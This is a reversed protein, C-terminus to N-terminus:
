NKSNESGAFDDCVEDVTTNVLRGLEMIQDDTYQPGVPMNLIQNALLTTIPFDGSKRGNWFHHLPPKYNVVFNYIDNEDNIIRRIKKRCPKELIVSYKSFVGEENNYEPHKIYKSVLEKKYIDAHRMTTEKIMGMGSLSFLIKEEWKQQMPFLFPRKTFHYLLWFIRHTHQYVHINRKEFKGMIQGVLWGIYRKRKIKGPARMFRSTFSNCRDFIVRDNTFIAGGGGAEIVKSLGFSTVSVDGFDGHLKGQFEGGFSPAFDEIFVLDNENCIRQIGIVDCSQGFLHIGMIARTKKTLNKELDVLDINYDKKSVDVFVPKSGAFLISLPVVLCAFDPVLIESGKPFNYAHISSILGMTGTGTPCCYKTGIYETLAQKFKESTAM